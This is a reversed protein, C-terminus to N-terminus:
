DNDGAATDPKRLALKVVIDTKLRDALAQLKAYAAMVHATDESVATELPGEIAAVAALSEDILKDTDTAAAKGDADILLDRFGWAKSGAGGAPPLGRFIDRFAEINAEISEKSVNAFGHEVKEPCPELCTMTLGAPVALKMDKTETDLYFLADSAANLAQQSTTFLKGGDGATALEKAFSTWDSILTQAQQVLDQALTSAYGARRAALEGEMATWATATVTADSSTCATATRTDFLLAEVAGLGRVNVYTKARLTTLSEYQKSVLVRDIGCPFSQPWSYIEARLGLGGPTSGSLAAAPGVQMLEAREWAAMASKWASQAASRDAESLSAAYSKTATALKKAKGLFAQYAPLYVRESLNVLAERRRAAAAPDEKPAAAEEKTCAWLVCMGLVLLGRRM